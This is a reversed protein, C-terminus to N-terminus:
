HADDQIKILHRMVHSCAKARMSVYLHGAECAHGQCLLEREDRRCADSERRTAADRHNQREQPMACVSHQDVVDDSRGIWIVLPRMSLTRHTDCLRLLADMAADTGTPM